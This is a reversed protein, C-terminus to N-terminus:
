AQPVLGIYTNIGGEAFQLLLGSLTVLVSVGKGIKSEIKYKSILFGLFVFPVSLLSRPLYKDVQIHTFASYPDALLTFLLGLAVLSPLIWAISASLIFWLLIYAFILSGIFWLHIYDGLVITKISLIDNLSYFETKLAIFFYVTNAVVFLNVLHKLTKLFEKDLSVRSGKEFFYGSVMFFFPVAWRGILFIIGTVNSPLGDYPMHLTVVSFAGLARLFDITYNRNKPLETSQKYPANDESQYDLRSISPKPALITLITNM